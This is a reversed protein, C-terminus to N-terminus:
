HRGTKRGDLFRDVPSATQHAKFVDSFELSETYHRTMTLTSHGLMTQLVFPTGGNRLFNIAATHRFRHPGKTGATVEARRCLNQMARRVGDRTLPKRNEAVWFNPYDDRRRLRYRLMALRTAQGIRVMREKAGKGMVKVTEADFNVDEEMMGAVEALRLGTDLFVLMLARDRYDVFRQGSTILMMNELDQPSFPRPKTRPIRPPRINPMPDSEAIGEAVLWNAFAHIARYFASITAPALRKEQLSVLFMRVTHSDLQGDQDKVFRVFRGVRDQYGEITLPSKGEARNALQWAKLLSPLDGLLALSPDTRLRPRPQYNRYLSPHTVL